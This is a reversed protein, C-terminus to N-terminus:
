ILSAKVQLKKMQLLKGCKIGIDKTKPESLDEWSSTDCTSFCSGFYRIFCLHNKKKKMDIFQRDFPNCPIRDNRLEIDM